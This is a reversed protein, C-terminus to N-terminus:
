QPLESFVGESEGNVCVLHANKQTILDNKSKCYCVHGQLAFDDLREGRRILYSAKHQHCDKTQRCCRKTRKIM